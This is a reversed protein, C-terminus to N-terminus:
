HISLTLANQVSYSLILTFILSFWSTNYDKNGVIIDKETKMETIEELEGGNLKM